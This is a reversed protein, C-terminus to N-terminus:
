KDILDAYTKNIDTFNYGKSTLFQFIKQKVQLNTYDKPSKQLLALKSTAIKYLNIYDISDYKNTVSDVINKDIGKRILQIKLYNISYPKSALMKDKIFAIAYKEDNLYRNSVLKKTVHDIVQKKDFISLKM